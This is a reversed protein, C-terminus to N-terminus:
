FHSLAGWLFCGVDLGGLASVKFRAMGSLFLAADLDEPLCAFVGLGLGGCWVGGCAWVLGVRGLFLGGLSVGLLAIKM